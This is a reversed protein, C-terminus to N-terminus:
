ALQSKSDNFYKLRENLMVVLKIFTILHRLNVIKEKYRDSLENETALYNFLYGCCGVM